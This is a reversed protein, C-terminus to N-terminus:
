GASFNPSFFFFLDSLSVNKLVILLWRRSRSPEVMFAKELLVRVTVVSDLQMQLVKPDVMSMKAM